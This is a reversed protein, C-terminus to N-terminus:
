FATAEGFLVFVGLCHSEPCFQFSFNLYDLSLRYNHFICLNLEETEGSNSWQNAQERSKLFSAQLIAKVNIALLTINWLFAVHALSRAFGQLLEPSVSSTTKVQFVMPYRFGLVTLVYKNAYLSSALLLVYGLSGVLSRNAISSLVM